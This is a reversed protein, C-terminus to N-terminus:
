FNGKSFNYVFYETSSIIIEETRDQDDQFNAKKLQLCEISSTVVSKGWLLTQFSSFSRFGYHGLQVVTAM